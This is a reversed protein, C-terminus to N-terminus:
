EIIFFPIKCTSNILKKQGFFVFFRGVYEHSASKEIKEVMYLLTSSLGMGSIRRPNGEVRKTKQFKKIIKERVKRAKRIKINKKEM